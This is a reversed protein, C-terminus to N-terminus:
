NIYDHRGRHLLHRLTVPDGRDTPEAICTICYYNVHYYILELTFFFLPIIQM